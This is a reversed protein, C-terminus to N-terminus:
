KDKKNFMAQYVLGGSIMNAKGMNRGALTFMGTAMVSLGNTKPVPLKFNVGLRSAEMKNSLFPMDNKRIDFGGLTNMQDFVIEAVLDAGDRWGARINYGFVEPLAVQNSYIMETTYYATRDITVNSRIMYNASATGYWHDKQADIMLRGFANKSHMGLSLPLYDAVYNTLPISGGCLAVMSVDLGMITKSLFQYKLLLTLDQIGSQGILTGASAKNSIWPAMAIINLNNTIGYNAMAMVSQSSVTGINGNKRLFTGEWYQNWSSYGYMFGGCLNRKAMMLGDVDTQAFGTGAKAFLCLFLLYSIKKMIKVKLLFFVM